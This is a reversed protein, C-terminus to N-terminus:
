YTLLKKSNNNEKVGREEELVNRSIEAVLEHSFIPQKNRSYLYLGVTIAAFIVLFRTCFASCMKIKQRKPAHSINRYRIYVVGMVRPQM